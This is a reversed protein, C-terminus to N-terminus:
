QEIGENRISDLEAQAADLDRQAENVKDQARDVKHQAQSVQQAHWREGTVYEAAIAQLVARLIDRASDTFGDWADFRASILYSKDAVSVSPYHQARHDNKGAPLFEVRAGFRAEYTKGNVRLPERDRGIGGREDAVSPSLDVWMAPANVKHPRGSGRSWDDVDHSTMGVAITGDVRAGKVATIRFFSSAGGRNWLDPRSTLEYDAIATM